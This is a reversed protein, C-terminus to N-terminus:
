WLIHQKMFNSVNNIKSKNEPYYRNCFFSFECAPCHEPNVPVEDFPLEILNQWHFSDESIQQLIRSIELAIGAEHFDGSNRDYSFSRVLDVERHLSNVAYFKHLLAIRDDCNSEVIWLEGNKELAFLPSCYCRLENINLALPAAIDRRSLMPTSSILKGLEKKLAGCMSRISKEADSVLVSINCNKEELERIFYLRHDRSATGCLMLEFERDFRCCINRELLEPSIELTDDAGTGSYFMERLARDFLRNLYQRLPIRRRLDHLLRLPTAAEANAGARCECSHLRAKRPCLRRLHHRYASWAHIPYDCYEM